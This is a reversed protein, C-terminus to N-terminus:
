AGLQPKGRPVCVRQPEDLPVARRGNELCRDRRQHFDRLPHVGHCWFVATGFRPDLTAHCLCTCGHCRTWGLSACVCQRCGGGRGCRKWLWPQLTAARTRLTLTETPMCDCTRLCKWLSPSLTCELDQSATWTLPALAARIACWGACSAAGTYDMYTDGHFRSLETRVLEDITGNYGYWGAEAYTAEFAASCAEPSDCEWLPTEDVARVAAGAAQSSM